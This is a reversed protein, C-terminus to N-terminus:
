PIYQLNNGPATGGIVEIRPKGNLMVTTGAIGARPSPLRARQSWVNTMPDFVSTLNLTDVADHAANWRSGGMVYLKGGLVATAAGTRPGGGLIPKTTWRNTAPDYVSFRADDTYPSAATLYFKGGIVGGGYPSHTPTNSGFPSRLRTWGDTAPNYRFFLPNCTEFYGWPDQAQFCGAIVYLKGNIVGTVGSGGPYYDEYDITVVPMPRKRTWTNAAPDYMYLASSPWEGGSLTWGGSVYIKGNIVGAGNSGALEVPLPRPWTWTNTAVNYAAVKANPWRGSATLGGIVYVISQGAANTVTAVAHASRTVTLTARTIWSNSTVALDPAGTTPQASAAPETPIHDGCAALWFTSLALAGPLLSRYPM